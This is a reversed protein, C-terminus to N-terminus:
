QTISRPPLTNTFIHDSLVAVCKWVGVIETIPRIFPYSSIAEASKPAPSKKYFRPQM